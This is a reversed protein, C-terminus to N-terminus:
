DEDCAALQEFDTTALVCEAQRQFKEGNRRHERETEKVCQDLFTDRDEWAPRYDGLEQELLKLVHRCVNLYFDDDSVPEPTECSSMAELTSQALVCDAQRRYEIPGLQERELALEAVCRDLFTRHQEASPAEFGPERLTAAFVHACILEPVPTGAWEDEVPAVAPAPAPTATPEPEVAKACGLSLLLSSAFSFSGRRM